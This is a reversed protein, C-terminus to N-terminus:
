RNGSFVRQFILAQVELMVDQIPRDAIMIKSRDSRCSGGDKIDSCSSADPRDLHSSKEGPGRVQLRHQM